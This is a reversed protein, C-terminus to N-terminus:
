GAIASTVESSARPLNTSTGTSSAALVQGLTGYVVVELAGSEVRQEDTASAWNSPPSDALRNAFLQTSRAYERMRVDMASKSLELADSLGQKIEVKFWSDIGRNLFELSFLYVVILPVIVLSGFIAVTRATLRSGPVQARFARVLEVVKRALLVSVTVVAIANILLIWPQLNSYRVSNQVSLALLLLLGGSVLVWLAILGLTGLRRLAAPVM